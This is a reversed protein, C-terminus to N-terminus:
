ANVNFTPWNVFGQPDMKPDSSTTVSINEEKSHHTVSHRCSLLLRKLVYINECLIYYVKIGQNCFLGSEETERESTM